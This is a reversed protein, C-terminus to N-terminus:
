EYLQHSGYMWHHLDTTHCSFYSFDESERDPDENETIDIFNFFEYPKYYDKGQAKTHVQLDSLALNYMVDEVSEFSGGWKRDIRFRRFTLEGGDSPNGDEDAPYTMELCVANGYVVFRYTGETIHTIDRTYLEGYGIKLVNDTGGYRFGFMTESHFSNKSDYVAMLHYAEVVHVHIQISEGTDEEKVTLDTVGLKNPIINVKTPEIDPDNFVGPRSYGKIYETSIVESDNVYVEHNEGLGGYLELMFPEDMVIPLYVHHGDEEVLGLYEHYIRFKQGDYYPHYDCGSLIMMVTFVAYILKKMIM